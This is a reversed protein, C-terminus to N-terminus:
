AADEKWLTLPSELSEATRLMRRLNSLQHLARRRLARYQDRIEEPDATVWVGRNGTCVPYGERRLEEVAAQVDRCQIGLHRALRRQTVADDRGPPIAGLVREAMTGVAM